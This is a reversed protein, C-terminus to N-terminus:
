FKAILETRVGEFAPYNRCVGNVCKIGARQGGAFLRIVTGDRITWSGSVNFYHPQITAPAETYYEYGLAASFLNARKFSLYSQGEDWNLYDVGQLDHHSIHMGDIEASYPGTISQNIDYEVHWDEQFPQGPLPRADANYINFREGGSVSARSRGDQWRLEVGAYPDFIRTQYIRDDFYAMSVFPVIEPAIQVDVRVRPGAVDTNNLVQQQIRELTPPANYYDTLALEPVQTPDLSTAINNYNRYDKYEALVTVPGLYASGSAYFATGRQVNDVIEQQQQAYEFYATGWPGIQPLELTGSYATVQDRHEQPIVDQFNHSYTYHAIDIGPVVWHGFHYEARSALVLDDPCSDMPEGSSSSGAAVPWMAACERGTAPDVNIVNTVGALANVRLGAVKGTVNAGRATTDIALEDVKRLALVLGRGYTAYSDGLTADVYPNSYSVAVKAIDLRDQYRDILLGVIRSDGPAAVPENLFLDSDLRLLATFSMWAADVEFRNLWDYYDSGTPDYEPSGVPAVNGNGSLPLFPSPGDVRPFHYAAVGYESLDVQLPQDLLTAEMARAQGAAGLALLLLLRRIGRV